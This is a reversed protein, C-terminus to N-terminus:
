KEGDGKDEDDEEWGYRYPDRGWKKKFADRETEIKWIGYMFFSGIACIITLIFISLVSM